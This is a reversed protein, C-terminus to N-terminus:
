DLTKFTALYGLVADLAVRLSKGDKRVQSLLLGGEISALASMALVDPKADARLEGRERMRTFAQALLSEWSAFAAVTHLRAGENRDVVEAALTGIPCGVPHQEYDKAMRRLTKELHAFTSIDRLSESLGALVQECRYGVASEVLGDRDSFYHYLQSKSAGTAARVDDLSTAQVGREAVLEAASEVIRERSARGRSTKPEASM